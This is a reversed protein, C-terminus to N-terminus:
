LLLNRIGDFGGLAIFGARAVLFGVIGVAWGAAEGSYRELSAQMRNLLPEVQRRMGIRVALLVLAPLIMVGCYAALVAVQAAPAIGANTIIAIGALYPVMTAVELAVAAVALAMLSGLGRSDPVATAPAPPGDGTPSTATSNSGVTRSRWRAILGPTYTEGRAAAAAKKEDYARTGPVLFSAGVATVGVVVCVFAGVPSGLWEGLSPGAIRLGGLLAAGIALYLAAVTALFAVIRGPRLRGPEVMLYLPIVLTGFSTADVLALGALTAYQIPEM